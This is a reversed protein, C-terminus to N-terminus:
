RARVPAPETSRSPGSRSVGGAALWSGSVILVMGIIAGATVPEDLILAGYAVAFVPAIYTVLVARAAGAENILRYFMAFAIGTGGMGLVLLSAVTDLGPAHDPMTALALPLTLAASVLMTGSATAAPPVDILHARLYFGGIAYGLSALVVMLGGIIAASDGHLDLGFLLVIGVMGAFLGVLGLGRTRESPDLKLALLATFLPVSAVLIGALGSAIEQEGAAILVFPVAVQVIALVIVPRWRGRLAGLQGRHTALAVLVAAGLACRSFVVWGVSLDELAVKIFLYSSGWIAAVALLTGWSRRSM